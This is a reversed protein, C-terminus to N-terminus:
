VTNPLFRSTFFYDVDKQGDGESDGAITALLRPLSDIFVLENENWWSM